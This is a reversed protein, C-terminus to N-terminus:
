NVTNRFIKSPKFTVVRRATIKAEEGTRPNRGIRTNKERIIFKGFGRIEVQDGKALVNKLTNFVAEVADRAQKNSINLEAWVNKIIDEKTM